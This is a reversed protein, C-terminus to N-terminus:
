EYFLIGIALQNAEALELVLRLETWDVLFRELDKQGDENKIRRWTDWADGNPAGGRAAQYWAREFREVRETLAPGDLGRVLKLVRAAAPASLKFISGTYEEAGEAWPALPVLEGPGLNSVITGEGDPPAAYPLVDVMAELISDTAELEELEEADFKPDGSALLFVPLVRHDWFYQRDGGGFVLAADVACLELARLAIADAPTVAREGLATLAEVVQDRAGGLPGHQGVSLRAALERAPSGFAARAAVEDFAFLAVRTGDGLEAGRDHFAFSNLGTPTGPPIALARGRVLAVVRSAAVGIGHRTGDDANSIEELSHGFAEKLRSELEPGPAGVWGQQPEGDLFLHVLAQPASHNVHLFLARGKKSLEGVLEPDESPLGRQGDLIELQVLQLSPLPAIRVWASGFRSALAHIEEDSRLGAPLLICTLDKM